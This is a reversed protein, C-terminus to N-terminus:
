KKPDKILTGKPGDNLFRELEMMLSSKKYWWQPVKKTGGNLFRKLGDSHFEKLEM